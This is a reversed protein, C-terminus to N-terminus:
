HQLLKVDLGLREFSNASKTNVLKFPQETCGLGSHPVSTSQTLSILADRIVECNTFTSRVKIFKMSVNEGDPHDEMTNAVQVSDDCDLDTARVDFESVSPHQADDQFNVLTM